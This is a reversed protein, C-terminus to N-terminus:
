DEKIKKIIENVKEKKIKDTQEVFSAYATEKELFPVYTLLFELVIFVLIIGLVFYIFRKDIM